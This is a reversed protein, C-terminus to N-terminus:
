LGFLERVKSETTPDNLNIKTSSPSKLFGRIQIANTNKVVFYQPGKHFVVDPEGVDAVECIVVTGNGYSLAVSLDQSAYVGTGYVAGTTMYKTNSMSLLGRRFIANWRSSKSGSFVLFSKKGTKLEHFTEERKLSGAQFRFVSETGFFTRTEHSAPVVVTEASGLIWQKMALTPDQLAEEIAILRKSTVTEVKLKPVIYSLSSDICWIDSEDQTTTVCRDRLADRFANLFLEFVSANHQLEWDM